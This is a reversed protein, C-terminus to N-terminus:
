PSHHRGRRGAVPRVHDPPRPPGSPRSATPQAAALERQGRRRVPEQQVRLGHEHHRQPGPRPDLVPAPVPRREDEGTWGSASSRSTARTRRSPATSSWRSRPTRRPATASRSTTRAAVSTDPKRIERAPLRGKRSARGITAHRRHRRRPQRQDDIEFNSGPLSAAIAVVAFAMAALSGAIAFTVGRRGAKMRSLKLARMHGGQSTDGPLGQKTGSGRASERQARGGPKSENRTAM